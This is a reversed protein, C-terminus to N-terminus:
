KTGNDSEQGTLTKWESDSVLVLAVKYKGNSIVQRNPSSNDFIWGNNYESETTTTHAKLKNFATKNNIYVKTFNPYTPRAGKDVWNTPTIEGAYYLKIPSERYNDIDKYSGLFDTLGDIQKGNKDTVWAYTLYLTENADGNKIDDVSTTKDLLKVDDLTIDQDLSAAATNAKATEKLSLGYRNILALIKDHLSANAGVEKTTDDGTIEGNESQSIKDEIDNIQATADDIEKQLSEAQKKYNDRDTTMTALEQELRKVEASSTAGSNTLDDIKKQLEKISNNKTNLEDVLQKHTAKYDALTKNKEDLVTKYSTISNYANKYADKLQNFKSQINQLAQGGNWTVLAPVTIGALITSLALVKTLKANM